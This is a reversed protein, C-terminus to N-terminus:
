SKSQFLNATEQSFTLIIVSGERIVFRGETAEIMLEDYFDEAQADTKLVIIEAWRQNENVYGVYLETVDVNLDFKNNIMNAQYYERSDEDRAEFVYGDEELTDIVETAENSTTGGGGCGILVVSLGLFVVLLVVLKRM